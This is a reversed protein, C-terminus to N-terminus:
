ANVREQLTAALLALLEIVELQPINLAWRQELHPAIGYRGKESRYLAVRYTELSPSAGATGEYQPAPAISAALRESLTQLLVIIQGMNLDDLGAVNPAM